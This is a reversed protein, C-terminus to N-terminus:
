QNNIEKLEYISKLLEIRHCSRSILATNEDTIKQLLETVDIVGNELKSEAAERIRRRYHIIEDDDAILRKNKSIEEQKQVSELGTNFLFVNRDNEATKRQLEIARLDNKRTYFGGINWKLGIGVQYNLSWGPNVMDEFMNLGPSGYFGTAFLNLQPMVASDLVKKQADLLAERAKFCQLEPRDNIATPSFLQEEPIEVTISDSRQGTFFSLARCYEKRASTLSNCQQKVTLLQAYIADADCQMATGNRLHSLIRTHNKNLLTQQAVNQKLTEDILLIGFYLDNVTTRIKYLQVDTNGSAVAEEREAVAATSKAMGGDWLTQSLDIAIKYQDKDLGKIEATQSLIKRLDEPFGTVDSQYTAQASLRIQPLWQKKINSLTLEKQGRLIGYREILPYNDRALQQCEELSLASLATPCFLAFCAILYKTKM